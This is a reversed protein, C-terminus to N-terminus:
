TDEQPKHHTSVGHGTADMHKRAALDSGPGEGHEPCDERGTGYCTWSAATTVTM